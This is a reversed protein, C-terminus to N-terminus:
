SLELDSQIGELPSDKRNGQRIVYICDGMVKQHVIWNNVYCVIEPNGIM